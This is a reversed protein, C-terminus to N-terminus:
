TLPPGHIRQPKIYAKLVFCFGISVPNIRGSFSKLFSPLHCFVSLTSFECGSVSVFWSLGDKM